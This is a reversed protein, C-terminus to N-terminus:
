KDLLTSERERSLSIVQPFPFLLASPAFAARAFFIMSEIIQM